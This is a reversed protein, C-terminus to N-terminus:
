KQYVMRRILRKENIAIGYYYIGTSPLPHNYIITHSGQDLKYHQSYITRGMIDLIFFQLDGGEPLYVDVATQTTFPNPYNQSLTYPLEAVVSDIEEFYNIVNVTYTTDNHHNIDFESSIHGYGSYSRQNNKPVKQSFDLHYLSGPYIPRSLTETILTGNVEATITYPQTLPLNGVNEVELRVYCDPQRNEEVLVKRVVIDIFRNQITSTTDNDPDNDNDIHVFATIQSYASDRQPLITSFLHTAETLSALPAETYYTERVTTNTDGDIYYGVEFSNASMSGRNHVILSVRTGAPDTDDLLISSAEMDVINTIGEFSGTTTDDLVYEDLDYQCYGKLSMYGMNTRVKQRFTYECYEMSPLGLGGCLSDFNVLETVRQRGGNFEYTLRAQTIPQLGYNRMKVTIAVSDGAVVQGLPHTFEILALDYNLPNLYFERCTTDNDNYLDSAVVTTACISFTDPFDSTVLFPAETFTFHCTDSPRLRGEWTGRKAIVSGYPRYTITFGTQTEYGFNKVVVKPAVWEGFKPKTPEIIDIVGVDVARQARLLKVNDIACGIGFNAFSSIGPKTGFVFRFQVKQPFDSSIMSTKFQYLQWRTDAIAIFHDEGEPYWDTVGLHEETYNLPVWQGLYNLFEIGMFSNEPLLACMKFSLTDTRVIRTNFIPTYLYSRSGYVGSTVNNSLGTAWVNPSSPMSRFEAKTPAGYEWYNHTYPTIGQPAYWENVDDFSDEWTCIKTEFRHYDYTFLNNTSDADNPQALLINVWTTGMDFEHYPLSAMMTQGPALPGEVYMTDSIITDNSIFSYAVPINSLASFGKNAIVFRVYHHSTDVIHDTPSVLRCFAADVTPPNKDISLLYTQTQGEAIDNFWGGNPDIFHHSTDSEACIIMRMHGFEASNPITIVKKVDTLTNVITDLVCEQAYSYEGDRNFDILAAIQVPTRRDYVDEVNTTIIHLTDTTGRTLHLVPVGREDFSTGDTPYHNHYVGFNHYPYGIPFFETYLTNFAVKTIDVTFTDESAYDYYAREPITWFHNTTAYADIRNTDNIRVMDSALDTWSRIYFSKQATPDEVNNWLTRFEYVFDGGAPITTTCVEDARQIVPNKNSGSRIEYVVPINSVASTGYNTIRVKVTDNEAYVRGTTRPAEIASVAVDTSVQPNVHVTIPSFSSRCNHSTKTALYYTHDNFYQPTPGWKQSAAASGSGNYFHGDFNNTDRAEFWRIILNDSQTAHLTDWGAYPIYADEGEPMDPTYYSDVAVKNTTDNTNVLDYQYTAWGQIYVSVDNHLGTPYLNATNAFRITTTGNVPVMVTTYAVETQPTVPLTPIYDAGTRVSARFGITLRAMSPIPKKGVNKITIEVPTNQLYCGDPVSGRGTTIARIATAQFDFAPAIYFAAERTNNTTDQDGSMQLHVRVQQTDILGLITPIYLTDSIMQHPELIAINANPTRLDTGLIEAWWTLNTETSNGNNFIRVVVRVTDTEVNNPNSISAPWFPEEITVISVDHDQCFFEHAGITPQIPHRTTGDIDTTVETATGKSSFQGILMHLDSTSTFEPAEVFSNADTGNATRLEEITPTEAAWYALQTPSTSYYVNYDSSQVANAKVYYAYGKCFSSFVNNMVNVMSCGEDAYFAYSKSQSAGAYIRVSNHYINAYQVGKINIGNPVAGQASTGYCSIMNNYITTRIAPTAVVNELMIGRKGGNKADVVNIVNKEIDLPGTHTNITIATLPLKSETMASQILNENITVTDVNEFLIGQNAFGDITNYTIYINSAGHEAAVDSAFACYGSDIRNNTIYVDRVNNGITIVNSNTVKYMGGTTRFINDTLTIHKCNDLVLVNGYATAVNSTIEAYVTVGSLSVYENGAIRLVYNNNATPTAKLVVDEPNGTESIFTITNRESVGPAAGLEMRGEYVGSAIEFVVAGDVGAGTLTDLAAAFTEYDRGSGISYNGSCFKVNFGRSVTDNSHVNDGVANVVVKLSHRGPMIDHLGLSVLRDQGPYVTDVGTFTHHAQDLWYDITYDSINNLGRNSVVVELPTSGCSAYQVTDIGDPWLVTAEIAPINVVNVPVMSAHSECGYELGHFLVDPRNKSSTGTTATSCTGSASTKYLCTKQATATYKTQAGKTNKNGALEFYVQLVISSTGDWSFNTNFNHKMWPGMADSVTLNTAEYVPTLDSKFATSSGYATDSITGISIQYTSFEVSNTETLIDAIYFSVGSVMGPLLGARSLDYASFIMQQKCSKNTPNYPSPYGGKTSSSTLNGVHSDSPIMASASVYFTDPLYLYDTMHTNNSDVAVMNRDYWILPEGTTHAPVSLTTRTGYDADFSTTVPPAPTFLVNVSVANTDNIHRADSTKADAWVKVNFITDVPAHLPALQPFTYRINEGAGISAIYGNSIISDNISCHLSVGSCAEVGFNHVNVVVEEEYLGCGDEFALGDIALDVVPKNTVNVHVTGISGECESPRYKILAPNTTGMTLPQEATAVRWMPASNVPAAAPNPWSLRTLGGADVPVTIGAGKWISEPVHLRTWITQVTIANTAVADVLQGGHRYMIGLNKNAPPTLTTTKFTVTSDTTSASAYYQVVVSNGPQIVINPMALIKNQYAVENSTIVLSDGWLSAPGDGVNTLEIAFNTGSHMFDPRPSTAGRSLEKSFQIESIRMMPVERRQRVYFTTDDFIPTTELPNGTQLFETADEDAYWYIISPESSIGNYMGTEWQRVGQSVSLLGSQSYPVNISVNDPAALHAHSTVEFVLSDNLQNPDITASVWFYIHYISDMDGQPLLNLTQPATIEVSEGTPIPVNVNITGSNNQGVVGPATCSYKIAAAGSTAPDYDRLGSNMVRIRIPTQASAECYDSLPELVEVVSFDYYLPEFEFAGPCPDPTHRATGYIDTTVEPIPVAIESLDQSFTRLDLPDSTTMFSPDVSKSQLDRNMYSHWIDLTNCANTNYKNLKTGAAYYDNNNVVVNTGPIYEFAYNYNDFTAIINNQFYCNTLASGGLKAASKGNAEATMKVSNYVVKVFNGGFVSLPSSMDTSMGDYECVMMNNAILAYNDASGAINNVSIAAAGHTTKIKNRTIKLAGSCDQVLVLAGNFISCDNIYNSDVVLNFQYQAKVANSGMESFNSRVVKSNMARNDSSFGILSVGIGGGTFNCGDVLLSDAGSSYIVTRNLASEVFQCNLFQCDKSSNSLRVVYQANADRREDQFIINKFRIHSVAQLDLLAADTNDSGASFVVEGSGQPEFQVYCDKSLGLLEPLVLPSYTGSALKVTLQGGIGCRSVAFLFEDITAYDPNTGGVAIDGALSGECAIFDVHTSDNLPEYDIYPNGSIIITDEVWASISHYGKTYLQNNSIQVNATAGAGLTGNWFYHNLPGNDLQYTITVGNIPATGYNKLMVRVQDPENAQAANDYNPYVISEVGCDYMMPMNGVVEFEIHPRETASYGTMFKEKNIAYPDYRYSGSYGYTYITNKNINATPFTQVYTATPNTTHNQDGYIVQVILDSGAYYFTDQLNIRIKQGAPTPPLTLDGEYVPHMYDMTYPHNGGSVSSSTSVHSNYANKMRIKLTTRTQAATIEQAPTFDIAVIGGAKYGANVMTISDYVYESKNTAYAPFPFKNNSGLTAAPFEAYNATGRVNYFRMWSSGDEPWTATNRNQTADKAVIRFYMMTDYGCFPIYFKYRNGSGPIMPMKDKHITPDSGAKWLVYISDANMGVSASTSIEAMVKTGSSSPTALLDPYCLMNISPTVMAQSSAKLVIDDLYWGQTSTGGTVKRNLTIRIQLLRSSLAVGNFLNDLSFSERKWMSNSTPTQQWEVYSSKDFSGTVPFSSCGNNTTYFSRLSSWETQHPFKAEVVAVVNASQCASADVDCIHSFELVYYQLSADTTLDINNLTLVVNSANHSLKMASSGGAHLSTQAAGSGTLTYTQAEGTEFGQRYVEQVQAHSISGCLAFILGLLLSKNKM